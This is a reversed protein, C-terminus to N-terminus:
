GAQGFEPWRVETSNERGHLINEDQSQLEREEFRHNATKVVIFIQIYM